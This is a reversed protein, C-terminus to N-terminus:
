PGRIWELDETTKWVVKERYGRYTESKNDQENHDARSDVTGAQHSVALQFSLKGYELSKCPHSRPYVMTGLSSTPDRKVSYVWLTSGHELQVQV